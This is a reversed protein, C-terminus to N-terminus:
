AVGTGERSFLRQTFANKAFVVLLALMGGLLVAGTVILTRKPRARMKPPTAPDVVRFSFEASGRALMMKQMETELLRGISQELAVIKNSALESQLYNINTGAETLARTRMHENVRTVLANAWDSAVVPDTWEVSLTIRETSRDESVRLVNEHFFRVADRMDAHEPGADDKWSPKSTFLPLLGKDEIFERAFARSQLIALAESTNAAQSGTTVGALRALGSLQETLGAVADQEAPVLLVDARYWETALLAYAIALIGALGTIGAILWKDQWLVAWIRVLAIEDDMASTKKGTRTQELSNM